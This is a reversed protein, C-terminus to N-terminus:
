EQILEFKVKNNQAWKHAYSDAYCVMTIEDAINFFADNEIKVVSQPITIKRLSWCNGLSDEDIRTVQDPITLSSFSGCGYFVEYELAKIQPPINIVTLSSCYRFAGNGIYEISDPLVIRYLKKCENFASTEITTVGKPLEVNTIANCGSFAEEQITSLGELLTISLLQKCNKFAEKSVIGIRGPVVVSRLGSGLFAGSGIHTVSDPISINALAKCNKFAGDGITSLGKPLSISKLAKCGSFAGSGILTVGQPIFVTEVRLREAGKTKAAGFVASGISVVKKDDIFAPFIVETPLQNKCAVIEITNNDLNVYEWEADSTLHEETDPESFEVSIGTAALFGSCIQTIVDTMQKIQNTYVEAVEKQKSGRLNLFNDVGGCAEFLLLGQIEKELHPAISGFAFILESSSSLIDVGFRLVIEKLVMEANYSADVGEYLDGACFPCKTFNKESDAPLQWQTKCHPCMM